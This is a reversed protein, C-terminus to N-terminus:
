GRKVGEREGSWRKGTGQVQEDNVLSLSLESEDLRAARRVGSERARTRCREAPGIPSRM